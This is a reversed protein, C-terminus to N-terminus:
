SIFVYMNTTHWVKHDVIDLAAHIIFQNLEAAARHASSGAVESSLNAEFLPVDGGGIICFYLM